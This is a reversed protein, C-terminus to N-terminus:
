QCCYKNSHNKYHLIKERRCFYINIVYRLNNFHHLYNYREIIKYKDMQNKSAPHICNRDSSMHQMNLNHKSMSSRSQYSLIMLLYQLQNINDTYFRNCLIQHQQKHRQYCWLKDHIKDSMCHAQLYKIHSRSKQSSYSFISHFNHIYNQSKRISFSSNYVLYKNTKDMAIFKSSNRLGILQKLLNKEFHLM